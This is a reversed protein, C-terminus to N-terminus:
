EACIPTSPVYGNLEVTISEIVVTDLPGDSANTDVQAIYDLLNFGSIMGGFTAYNEDLFHSDAHVIFFQSTASDPYSTRAMSIVGRFHELDNTVGNSTFDGTIPCTSSYTNGGQIMFNEIVRHFSNNTFDGDQIYMIFNNVTNPAVDPFLELEIIGFDKITITVVPNNSSLYEYYPLTTLNVPDGIDFEWKAYLTFDENVITEFDYLTTLEQDLYWGVLVFYEKYPNIPEIVTMDMGVSVSGIARGGNTVFTVENSNADTSEWKAHLDVDNNYNTDFNFEITLGAEAYWGEFTYNERTPDAPRIVYQGGILIESDIASGGNTNYTVTYEYITDDPCGSLLIVLLLVVPIILKRM